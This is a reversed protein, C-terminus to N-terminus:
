VKTCHSLAPSSVASQFQATWWPVSQVSTKKIIKNSWDILSLQKRRHISIVCVFVKNQRKIIQKESWIQGYLVGLVSSFKVAVGYFFCVYVCLFCQLYSRNTETYDSCMNKPLPRDWSSGSLYLDRPCVCVCRWTLRQVRFGALIIPGVHEATHSMRQVAVDMDSRHFLACTNSFAAFSFLFFFFSMWTLWLKAMLSWDPSFGHWCWARLPWIIGSWGAGRGRWGFMWRGYHASMGSDALPGSIPTMIIFKYSHKPAATLGFAVTAAPSRM